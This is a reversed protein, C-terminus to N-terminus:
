MIQEFQEELNTPDRAIQEILGKTPLSDDDNDDDDDDDAGYDDGYDAEAFADRLHNKMNADLYRM